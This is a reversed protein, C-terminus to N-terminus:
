AERSCRASRARPCGTPGYRLVFAGRISCPTGESKFELNLCAGHAVGAIWFVVEHWTRARRVVRMRLTSAAGADGLGRTPDHADRPELPRIGGPVARGHAHATSSGAAPVGVSTYGGGSAGDEPRQMMGDTAQRLLRPAGGQTTPALRDKSRSGWGLASCPGPLM